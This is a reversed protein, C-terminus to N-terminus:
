RRVMKGMCSGLTFEVSWRVQREFVLEAGMILLCDDLLYQFIACESFGLDVRDIKARRRKGRRAGM